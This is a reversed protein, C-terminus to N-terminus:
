RPVHIPVIALSLIGCQTVVSSFSVDLDVEEFTWLTASAPDRVQLARGSEAGLSDDMVGSTWQRIAFDEDDSTDVSFTTGSPDIASIVNVLGRGWLMPGLDLHTVGPPVRTTFVITDVGTATYAVDAGLGPGGYETALAHQRQDIERLYQVVAPRPGGLGTLSLRDLPLFVSPKAM